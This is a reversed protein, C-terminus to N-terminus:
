RLYAAAFATSVLLAAFGILLFADIALHHPRRDRPLNAIVPSLIGALLGSGLAIYAPVVGNGRLDGVLSPRILLVLGAALLITTLVMGLRRPLMRSRRGAKLSLAGGNMRSMVIAPSIVVVFLRGIDVTQHLAPHSLAMLTLTYFLTISALGFPLGYVYLGTLLRVGPREAAMLAYLVALLILTIFASFMAASVSPATKPLTDAALYVSFGVFAFGALIGCLSAYQPALNQAEFDAEEAPAPAVPAVDVDTTVASLTAYRIITQWRRNPDAHYSSRM